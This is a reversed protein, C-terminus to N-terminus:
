AAKENRKQYFDWVMLGVGMAMLVVFGIMALKGFVTDDINPQVQKAAQIITQGSVGTGGLIAGVGSPTRTVAQTSALAKAPVEGPKSGIAAPLPMAVTTGVSAQKVMTVAYDIVGHDGEQFGSVDGEVRRTWGTGFTSWGKLSKMFNLRRTCLRTILDTLDNVGRVKDITMPGMVGDVSIDLERQLDKVAKSVGSNVAYDFVCYDLGDPLSDGGCLAWYQARYISTVESDDALAVDRADLGNRSRFSDYVRQTIGKFTRGGPDRPNDSLGGEHALVLPLAKEYNAVSM